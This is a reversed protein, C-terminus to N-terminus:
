IDGFVMWNLLCFGLNAIEFGERLYFLAVVGTEM